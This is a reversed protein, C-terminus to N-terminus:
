GRYEELIQIEVIKLKERGDGKEKMYNQQPELIEREYRKTGKRYREYVDGPLTEWRNIIKFTPVYFVDKGSDHYYVRTDDPLDKMMNRLEGVTTQTRRIRSEKEKIIKKGGTGKIVEIKM